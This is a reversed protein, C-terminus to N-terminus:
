NGASVLLPQIRKKKKKPKEDNSLTLKTVAEGVTNTEKELLNDASRKVHSLASNGSAEPTPLDPAAILTPMIRTKKPRKSPPAELVASQGPDCPPILPNDVTINEQQVIGPKLITMNQEQPRALTSAAAEPTCYPEGLEGNEFSIISIYGDISSVVLTMGDSSWQCDSHGAYHLGRIISLPRTHHTDYVLISDTTLVAFLSRYPLGRKRSLPSENEKSDAITSEQATASEPLKYFVPSPRVVLSPKRCVDASILVFGSLLVM